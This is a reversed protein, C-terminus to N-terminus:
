YEQEMAGEALWDAKGALVLSAIEMGKEDNNDWLKIFNEDVRDRAEVCFYDAIQHIVQSEKDSGCRDMLMKAYSCAASIAFLDVCIDVLRFTVLQRQKLGRRYRLLLKFFEKQFRKSAKSVYLLHGALRSSQMSSPIDATKGFFSRAVWKALYEGMGLAKGMKAIGEAKEFENARNIFPELLDRVLSLHLTNSAGEGIVFIRANRLWRELPPAPEGTNRLSDRTEYGRGGRLEMASEMVEYYYKTSCFLKCTAAEIRLDIKDKDALAAVLWTMAEMAFLNAAMKGIGVANAEYAGLPQGFQVRTKAWWLTPKWVRKAAGLTLASVSVRGDNLAELALRLGKREEGILNEAPIKVNDFKIRANPLGRYGMFKCKERTIGPSDMPVIFASISKAEYPPVKAMVLVNAAITGDTCYWKEGNLTVEKGDDSFVATLQMRSPDSGAEKETLAFASISGRAMDPLYAQRQDERASHKLPHPLGISQHASAILGIVDDWSGLFMLARNYNVESLGSGGYEESINLGFVGLEALGKLVEQSVEADHDITDVDVKERLFPELKQLIADGRERDERSQRPFPFILSFDPAGGVLSAMFSPKTRKERVAEIAEIESLMGKKQQKAM